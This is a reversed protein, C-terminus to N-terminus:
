KRDAEKMLANWYLDAPQPLVVGRAASQRDIENLYEAFQHVTMLRTVPVFEMADIQQEYTLPALAASYFAEFDKDERLIPVGYHWKCTARQVYRGQGTEKGLYAYWMHSLRNQKLSRSEDDKGITVVWPHTSEPNLNLIVGSVIEADRETEIHFNQSPVKKATAM